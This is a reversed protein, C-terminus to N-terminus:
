LKLPMTYYLVRLWVKKVTPSGLIEKLELRAAERVLVLNIRGGYLHSGPVSM